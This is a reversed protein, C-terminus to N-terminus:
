PNVIKLNRDRTCPTEIIETTHTGVKIEYLMTKRQYACPM